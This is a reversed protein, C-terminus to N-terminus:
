TVYRPGYPAQELTTAALATVFMLKESLKLKYKGQM